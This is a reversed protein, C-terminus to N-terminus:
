AGLVAAIGRVGEIIDDESAAYSLRLFGEGADGFAIGPATIVNAKRIIRKSLELSDICGEVKVWFYFAGEPLFFSVKKLRDLEGAMLDRRARFQKLRRERAEDGRPGLAEVAANQSVTPACTVIYQHVSTIRTITEPPGVVWGIRWGTMSLDKSLGSIV